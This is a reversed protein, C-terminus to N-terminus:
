PSEPLEPVDLDFKEILRKREKRAETEFEQGLKELEAAQALLAQVRNNIQIGFQCWADM